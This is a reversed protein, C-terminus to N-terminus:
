GGRIPSPKRWHRSADWLCSWERLPSPKRCDHSTDWLYSGYRLAQEMVLWAISSPLAIEHEERDDDQQRPVSLIPPLELPLDPGQADAPRRASVGVGPTGIAQHLVGQLHRPMNPDALNQNPSQSYPASRSHSSHEVVPSPHSAERSFPNAPGTASVKPEISILLDKRMKREAPLTGSVMFDSNYSQGSAFPMLHHPGSYFGEPPGNALGEQYPMYPMTDYGEPVGNNIGEHGLAPQGFGMRGSSPSLGYSFPMPPRSYIGHQTGQQEMQAPMYLAIQYHRAPQQSQFTIHPFRLPATHGPMNTAAYLPESPLLDLYQDEGETDSDLLIDVVEPQSYSPPGVFFVLPAPTPHKNKAEDSSNPVVNRKRKTGRQPASGFCPRSDMEQYLPPTSYTSSNTM